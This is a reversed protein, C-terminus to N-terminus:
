IEPNFNLEYGAGKKHIVKLKGGVQRAMLNVLRLGLGSSGASETPLGIGNDNVCLVWMGAQTAHKELIVQIVGTNEGPFAYKISNTILENVILALPLAIRSHFSAPSLHAAIKVDPRAELVEKYFELVKNLYIEMDVELRTNSGFLIEHMASMAHIRSEGIRLAQKVEEKDTADAQLALLSSIMQLSNNVRHHVEQFLIEQHENEAILVDAYKKKLRYARRVFFLLIISLLVFGSLFWIVKKRNTASEHELENEVNLKDIREQKKETEYQKILHTVQVQKDMNVLSDKFAEYRVYNQYAEMYKGLMNYTIALDSYGERYQELSNVKRNSDLAQEFYSLAKAPEHFCDRYLRGINILTTLKYFTQEPGCLNLTKNRYTLAKECDGTRTYYSAFLGTVVIINQKDDIVKTLEEAQSLLTFIREKKQPMDKGLMFRALNLYAYIKADKAGLRDAIEVGEEGTKRAQETEMLDQHIISLFVNLNVQSNLDKSQEAVKLGKLDERAAEVYLGNYEYAQSLILYFSCISMSDHLGEARKMGRNLRQKITDLPLKQFQYGAM